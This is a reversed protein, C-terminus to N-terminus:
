PSSTTKASEPRHRPPRTHRSTAPKRTPPCNYFLYGPHDPHGPHPPGPHWFDAPPLDPVPVPVPVAAPLRPPRGPPAPHPTMAPPSTSPAVSAVGAAEDHRRHHPSRDNRAALTWNAAPTDISGATGSRSRSVGSHVVGGRAHNVAGATVVCGVLNGPTWPVPRGDPRRCTAKATVPPEPM